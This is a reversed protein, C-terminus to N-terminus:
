DSNKEKRDNTKIDQLASKLEDAFLKTRYRIPEERGPLHLITVPVGPENYIKKLADTAPSGRSTTDAKVALVNKEKILRAIEPRGFVTKGVVSCSLCWDATFEILVPRGNERATEISQRDYEQWDIRDAGCAFLILIVAILLTTALLRVIWKTRKPTTYTTWKGCVWVAFAVALALYLVKSKLQVPLATFLWAAIVLLLFGLAEKVFEMWGGPKPLKSLLAPSSTLVAYPVAMGVGITLIAVTALYLPQIQAWAFAAALVAFSCPTSLIAALFGMAVAGAFGKGSGGRSSISGPVRITFLGFMFLALVVLLIVMAAIFAPSRFQDGWQLVTGYFLQLIINLVALAAFFLMIGGCFALGMFVSRSKSQHSQEVLRTVIIPLVPWVCPMINLILGALFALGLATFVPYNAAGTPGASTADTQEAGTGPLSFRPNDMVAAPSIKLKVSLPAFEPMRCQSQSCLAGEIQIDMDASDASGSAEVTFPIYVTFDGSFVTVTKGAMQDRYSESQPFIPEDFNIFDPSSPKLKLNMGAPADDASAYFHWGQECRFQVALASKGGPAVAPHQLLAEIAAPQESYAGSGQAVVAGSLILLAAIPIIIINRLM